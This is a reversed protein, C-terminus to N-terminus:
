QKDNESEAREPNLQEAAENDTIENAFADLDRFTSRGRGLPCSEAIRQSYFPALHAVLAIRWVEFVFGWIVLSDKLSLWARYPAMTGVNKLYRIGEKNPRKAMVDAESTSPMKM